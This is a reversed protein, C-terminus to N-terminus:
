SADLITDCVFDAISTIPILGHDIAHIHGDAARPRFNSNSRGSTFTIESFYVDTEGAYLDLRVVGKEQLKPGFDIEAIERM